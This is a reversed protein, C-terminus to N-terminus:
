LRSASQQTDSVPLYDRIRASAMNHIREYIVFNVLIRKIYNRTENYPITEVWIAPDSAQFSNQWKTSNRSGANYSALAYIPNEDMQKFLRDFYAVGLKLNMSVTTLDKRSPRKIGIYDATHRATSPLIQMLGIAGAGSRINPVFASEQRMIGYIWTAPVEYRLSVKQVNELFPSPHTVDLDFLVNHNTRGAARIAGDHWGWTHFLMTAHIWTHEDGTEKLQTLERRASFPRGLALWERIRAVEAVSNAVQVLDFQTVHVTPVNLAYDSEIRDSALFGYYSRQNSIQTWLQHADELSGLEYLARARWFAWESRSSINEDMADIANLVQEWNENALASRCTWELVSKNKMSAPLRTLWAHSEPHQNWAMKLAISREIEPLSSEPFANSSRLENWYEVTQDRGRKWMQNIGHRIVDRGFQSESWKALHQDITNRPNRHVANLKNVWSKVEKSELLGALYETMQRDGRARTKLIRDWIAQDDIVGQKIGYQFVLDCESPQSKGVLWLKLIANAAVEPKRTRILSRAYTCKTETSIANEYHRAILVWDENAVLRKLWWNLFSTPVPIKERSIIASIEANTFKSSSARFEKLLLYPYLEYNQMAPKLQRWQNLHRRELLKEAKIFSIRLDTLPTKADVQPTAFLFAAVLLLPLPRLSPIIFHKLHISM